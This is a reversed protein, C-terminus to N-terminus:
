ARMRETTSAKPLATRWFGFSGALLATTVLPQGRGGAVTDLFLPQQNRTRNMNNLNNIQRKVADSVPNAHFDM